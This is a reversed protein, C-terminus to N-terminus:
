FFKTPLRITFEINLSHDDDVPRSFALRDTARLDNCIRIVEKIIYFPIDHIFYKYVAIRSFAGFSERLFQKLHPDRYVIIQDVLSFEYGITHYLAASAKQHQRCTHM